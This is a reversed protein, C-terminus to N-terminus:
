ETGPKLTEAEIFIRKVDPQEQRIQKELRDISTMLEATSLEPRFQIDLNLLINHPGMHMTLPRAAREVAGDAEVLKHIEDIIKRDASEGILLGRSEYTLFLAVVALILGIIISAVGDLYPAEYRHGLYVGLFAVILGLLAATDEGLVTLVTPDKTTRMAHWVGKEGIMPMFERLAITWAVAEIVVAIGMVVYNWTPDRLESPHLVHTIGEYISMGGGIGFLLIAVILSWFYLEKGYGFPHTADPPQKGKKIGLLLLAQNGTDVLSHIGESIMASSGTFGAATFKAIAITFNGAMAGYVAIPKESAM